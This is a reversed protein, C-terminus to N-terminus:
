YVVRRGCCVISAWIASYFFHPFSFGQQRVRTGRAHTHKWYNGLCSSARPGQLAKRHANDNLMNFIGAEGNVWGLRIFNPLNQPFGTFLFLLFLEKASVRVSIREIRLTHMHYFCSDLAGRISIIRASSFFLCCYGAANPFSLEVRTLRM